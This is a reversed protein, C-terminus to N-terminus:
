APICLMSRQVTLITFYYLGCCSSTRISEPPSCIVILTRRHCRRLSSPFTGSSLPFLGSYDISGSYPVSKCLRAFVSHTAIPLLDALVSFPLRIPYALPSAPSLVPLVCVFDHYYACTCHTCHLITPTDVTCCLVIYLAFIGCPPVTIAVVLILICCEYTFMVLADIRHVNHPRPPCAGVANGPPHFSARHNTPKPQPAQSWCSPGQPPSFDPDTLFKSSPM